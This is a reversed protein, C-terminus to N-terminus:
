LLIEELHFQVKLPKKHAVNVAADSITEVAGDAACRSGIHVHYVSDTVVVVPCEPLPAHVCVSEREGKRGRGRGRAREERGEREWIIVGPMVLLHSAM